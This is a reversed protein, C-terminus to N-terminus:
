NNLFNKVTSDFSPKVRVMDDGIIHISSIVELHQLKKDFLIIIPNEKQNIIHQTCENLVKTNMFLPTYATRLYLGVEKINEKKMFYTSCNQAVNYIEVNSSAVSSFYSWITKICTSCQPYQSIIFIAKEKKIGNISFLNDDYDLFQIYDAPIFDKVFHYTEIKELYENEKHYLNEQHRYEAQTKYLWSVPTGINIQTIYEKFQAFVLNGESSEMLLPFYNDGFKENESLNLSYPEIFTTDGIIQVFYPTIYSGDILNKDIAILLFRESSFVHFLYVFNNDFISYKAFAYNRETIDEISNLQNTIEKPINKWNSIKLNYSILFDGDLSYKDIKPINQQLFYLANNQISIVNVPAIQLFFPDALVLDRVKEKNYNSLNIKYWDFGYKNEVFAHLDNNIVALKSVDKLPIAKEYEYQKNTTLHYVWIEKDVSIFAQSDTVAIAWIWIHSVPEIWTPPLSIFCTDNAGTFANIKTFKAYGKHNKDSFGKQNIIFLLTDFTTYINNDIKTDLHLQVYQTLVPEFMDSIYPTKQHTQCKLSGFLLINIFIIHYKKM